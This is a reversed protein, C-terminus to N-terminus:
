FSGFALGMAIVVVLALLPILVAVVFIDPYAKRHSLGAISLLTIVAGNHPLADLGGTSLSVVRHMLDPSIGEGQARLAYDDGLTALAISMGGSASGTLGALLSAAIALSVLANGGLDDVTAAIQDFAPLNAIVSGFGVLAATNFLPLLAAEAGKTLARRPSTLGRWGLGLALLIAVTLSIMISWLGILAQPETAGWAASRLYSLDTAPLVSTSLLLNLGVAVPIPLAAVILPLKPATQRTVIDSPGEARAGRWNLWTLGGALMISGAIMGLGPAAFLTTGFYAMPIANQIAPTGPLATM